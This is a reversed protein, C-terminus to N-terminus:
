PHSDNRRETEVVDDYVRLAEGTVASVDQALLLRAAVLKSAAERVAAEYDDRSAYRETTTPRGPLFPVRSGLREYPNDPDVAFSATASTWQSRSDRCREVAHKTLELLAM